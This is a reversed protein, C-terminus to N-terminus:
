AILCLMCELEPLFAPMLWRTYYAQVSELWCKHLEAEAPLGAVLEGLM